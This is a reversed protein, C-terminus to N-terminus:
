KKSFTITEPEVSFNAGLNTASIHMTVNKNNVLDFNVRGTRVASSEWSVSYESAIDDLSKAGIVKGTAKFESIGSGLLHFGSVKFHGTKGNLKITATGNKFGIGVGSYSMTVSVDGMTSRALAPVSWACLALMCMMLVSRKM